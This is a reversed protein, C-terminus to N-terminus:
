YKLWLRVRGYKAIANILIDVEARVGAASADRLGELYELDDGTFDQGETSLGYRSSLLMRLGDGLPTGATVPQWHLTASM